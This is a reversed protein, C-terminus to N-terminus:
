SREGAKINTITRMNAGAGPIGGILASLMNGIGQGILEDNSDHRNKTKNDAVASTLLSEIAGVIALTLASLVITSLDLSKNLTMNGMQPESFGGPINGIVSVDLGLITAVPTLIILAVFSGPISHSTKPLLYIIAITAIALGMATYNIQNLMGPAEIFIDLVNKPSPYGLIPFIQLIILLLGIGSMFGTVVPYPIYRFYAGVKFLGLGIQIIGALVFIAIITGMAASLSGNTQISLAIIAAAVITMPATPGSIMVPTGGFWAAAMGVAIAAYLGALAGIGSQVGFALALPLSLAGATLGGFVDGRINSTDIQLKM